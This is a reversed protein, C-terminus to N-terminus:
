KNVSLISSWHLGKYPVEICQVGVLETARACPKTIAVLQRPTM